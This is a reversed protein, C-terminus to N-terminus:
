FVCGKNFPQFSPITKKSNELVVDRSRVIDTPLIKTLRHGNPILFSKPINFSNIKTWWLNYRVDLPASIRKVSKWLQQSLALFVPSQPVRLWRPSFWRVIIVLKNLLGLQPFDCLEYKFWRCHFTPHINKFARVTTIVCSASSIKFLSYLLMMLSYARIM